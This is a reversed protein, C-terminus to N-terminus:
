EFLDGIDVPQEPEEPESGCPAPAVGGSFFRHKYKEGWARDNEEYKAKWDIGDGSGRQELDSYTDTFDEVLAITDPDASDGVLTQLKSFFEDKSLVAM